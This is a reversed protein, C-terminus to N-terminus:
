AFSPTYRISYTDHGRCERAADFDHYDHALDGPRLPHERHDPDDILAYIEEQLLTYLM